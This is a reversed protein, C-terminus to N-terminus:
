GPGPVAGLQQLLSLNDAVIWHEAIKGGEFRYVNMASFTAAKGSAPLGQFDGRHTGRVTVRAAGRDGEVLLDELTHTLDPFAAQFGQVFGPFTARDMPGPAGAFHCAYGPSQVAEVGAPDRADIAAYFRRVTAKNDESSM